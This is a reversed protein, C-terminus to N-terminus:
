VSCFKGSTLFQMHRTPQRNVGYRGSLDTKTQQLEGEFRSWWRIKPLQLWSAPDLREEDDAPGAR